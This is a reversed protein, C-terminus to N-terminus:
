YDSILLNKCVGSFLRCVEEVVEDGVSFMGYLSALIHFIPAKTM